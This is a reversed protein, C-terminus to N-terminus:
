LAREFAMATGRWWNPEAWPGGPREETVGDIEIDTQENFFCVLDRVPEADRRPDRYTWVLNERIGAATRASFYSAHGKYACVTDLDSPSLEVRVDKRPMYWRAPLGTEFIAVPRNTEALVEGDLLVRVHRSSPVADVRHYPDRAHALADMDEELWRDMARWYFAVYPRLDPVPEGDSEYTWGARRVTRDGVLLDFFYATGLGQTVKSHGDRVLLEGRVTERPFYYRPLQGHEFYLMPRGSDVVVEDGVLGRIRRPSPELYRWETRPLAPSSVGWPEHGFPGTGMTLSM